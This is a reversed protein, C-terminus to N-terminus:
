ASTTSEDRKRQLIGIAVRWLLVVIGGFLFGGVAYRIPRANSQLVFYGDFSPGLFALAGLFAGVIAWVAIRRRDILGRSPRRAFFAGIVGAIIIAFVQVNMAWLPVDWGSKNGPKCLLMQFLAAVLSVAIAMAAAPLVACFSGAIFRFFGHTCIPRILVGALAGAMCGGILGLWVAWSLMAIADVQIDTLM